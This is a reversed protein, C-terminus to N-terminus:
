EKCVICPLVSRFFEQDNRFTNELSFYEEITVWRAESVEDPDINIEGSAIEVLWWHLLFNSDDSLCEWVKRVARVELGVEEKVERVVTEQQTEGVEITGSLPGWYGPARAKPGRQIILVCDDKRIVAIVAEKM